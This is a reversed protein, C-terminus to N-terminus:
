ATLPDYGLYRIDSPGDVFLFQRRAKKRDRDIYTDDRLCFELELIQNRRLLWEIRNRDCGVPVYLELVQKQNRSARESDPNSVVFVYQCDGSPREFCRWQGASRCVLTNKEGYRHSIKGRVPEANATNTVSNLNKKM